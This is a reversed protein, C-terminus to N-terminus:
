TLPQTSGLAMTHSSPNPLNFFNLSRKPFRVRQLLSPFVHMFLWLSTCDKHPKFQPSSPGCKLTYIVKWSSVATSLAVQVGTQRTVRNVAFPACIKPVSLDKTRRQGTTTFPPNNRNSAYRYQLHVQQRPTHSLSSKRRSLARGYSPNFNWYCVTFVIPQSISLIGWQTSLGSVYPSSTTVRVCRGREVGWFYKIASM